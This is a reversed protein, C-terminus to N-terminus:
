FLKNATTPHKVVHGYILTYITCDTIVLVIFIVFVVSIFELVLQTTNSSKTSKCQFM